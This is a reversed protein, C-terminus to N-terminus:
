HAKEEGHMQLLAHTIQVKIAVGTQVFDDSKLKFMRM